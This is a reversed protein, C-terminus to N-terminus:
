FLGSKKAAATGLALSGAGSLLGNTAANNANTAGLEANFQASTAGLLDAGAVNAMTGPQSVGTQPQSGASMQQGSRVANLINIPNQQLTQANQFDAQLGQNYLNANSLDQAYRAQSAQNALNANTVGMNFQNGMAENQAQMTNLGQGYEQAQAQNAFQGTQLGQNFQQGIASNATNIGALQNGYLTSSANVGQGIASNRANSYAQQKQNNFDQMASNWAESGRTIGQNALQNELSAQGKQYQPDLYQTQQQYLADQVQQNVLNPDNVNTRIQSANNDVGGVIRNTTDGLQTQLTPANVNGVFQTTGASRQYAGPDSLPKDLASQVYGLGSEAANGLGQNIRNSQDYLAQQEPSMVVNQTWQNLGTLTNKLKADTLANYEDGSYVKGTKPDLYSGSAKQSYTVSGQPTTQNVMNAYNALQANALNGGATAQAAATYNPAAPAKNTGLLSNVVDM